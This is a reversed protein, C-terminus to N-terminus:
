DDLQESVIARFLIARFLYFLVSWWDAGKLLCMELVVAEYSRRGNFCHVSFSLNMLKFLKLLSPRQAGSASASPFSPM